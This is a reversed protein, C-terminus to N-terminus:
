DLRLSTLHFLTGVRQGEATARLDANKTAARLLRIAKKNGDADFQVFTGDKLAIGYGTILCEARLACQRTHTAKDDNQCKFPMLHGRLVEATGAAVAGGPMQLMAAMLAIVGISRKTRPLARNMIMAATHAGAHSTAIVIPMDILM